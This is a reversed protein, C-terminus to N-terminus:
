GAEALEPMTVIFPIPDSDLFAPIRLVPREPCAAKAHGALGCHACIVPNM